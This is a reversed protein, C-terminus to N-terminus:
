SLTFGEYDAAAVADCRAAYDPFGLLPMFVRPKGPVNAGLYWSNCTPYLTRHAVQNVHGVWEMAAERTAEITHRGTALLHTICDAIWDIHQEAAVVMNCLVSPSGPGSVSFLNPFDPVGLGLYTVPGAAWTDRLRAHGRGTIDIANLAGTMADYGTALVLADLPHHVGNATVGDPTIRDVGHDAIDVLHVNPRNFTEYYGSDLCLRKCSILHSPELRAAVEPDHVVDRIKARVFDAVYGNAKPDVITDVFTAQFAWGGEQWGEEALRHREEDDVSFAPIRPTSITAGLAGAMTRQRRRFDAYVAKVEAVADPDLPENRAPISYTATRQFVTLAAAVEAVVPILQVASSGTGIVGVRQGSLDIPEHPWRGTHLLPGAFDDRGPIDPLNASSLSGTAMVLFPATVDPGRDTTVRWCGEAEDDDFSAATVRTDFRIDRRLDFRDAVHGLYRQIEAHGAYRETWEWEQQLEESFSYSYEMSEVDCRAGPYRNWYWTGGVDSGAEIVMPRLGAQRFRYAAYVGAFGAGVVVVDVQSGPM